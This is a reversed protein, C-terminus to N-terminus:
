ASPDSGIRERGPTHEGADQGPRPQELLWGHRRWTPVGGEVVHLVDEAGHRDLVSLCLIAAAPSMAPFAIGFCVLPIHVVLYLAQM